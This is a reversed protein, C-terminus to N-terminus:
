AAADAGPLAAGAAAGHGGGCRGGAPDAPAGPGAGLLGPDRGDADALAGRRRGPRGDRGARHAAAAGAAEGERRRQRQAGARRGNGNPVRQRREAPVARRGAVADGGGAAGASRLEDDFAAAKQVAVQLRDNNERIRVSAVVITGENWLDRTAEYTEPWVTVEISGTLDEIEAAIFTRGDKTNLSRTGAVIGGIITDRGAFEANLEVISCTLLTGLKEAAQAFPHESLYIGLLEKEWSLKQQKTAEPVSELQPGQLAPKEEPAMMDFLSAQGAEKQKQVNQAYTCLRELSALLAAREALAM